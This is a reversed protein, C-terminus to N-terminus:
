LYEQVLRISERCDKNELEFKFLIGSSDALEDLLNANPSQNPDGLFQSPYLAMQKLCELIAAGVLQHHTLNEYGLKSLLPQEINCTFDIM